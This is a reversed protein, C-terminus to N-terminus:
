PFIMFRLCVRYYHQRTEGRKQGIWYNVDVRGSRGATMGIM